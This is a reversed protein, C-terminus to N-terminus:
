LGMKKARHKLSEEYGYHPHLKEVSEGSFAIERFIEVVDGKPKEIRIADKDLEMVVRSGPAIGLIKRFTKPIVVQGKTGVKMEEKVEM